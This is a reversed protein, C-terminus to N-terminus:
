PWVFSQSSSIMRAIDATYQVKLLGDVVILIGIIRIIMVYGIGASSTILGSLAVYAGALLAVLGIVFEARYVGSVPKRLIIYAIGVAALLGGVGYGCYQSVEYPKVLFAVGLLVSVVTTIILNRVPNAIGRSIRGGKKVKKPAQNKATKSKKVKKDKEPAGNKTIGGEALEKPEEPLTDQNKKAAM